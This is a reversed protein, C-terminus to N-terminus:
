HFSTFNPYAPRHRVPAEEAYSHRPRPRYHTRHERRGDREEDSVKAKATLEAATDPDVIEQEKLHAVPFRARGSHDVLTPDVTAAPAGANEVVTPRSALYIPVVFLALGFAIALAYILVSVALDKAESPYM